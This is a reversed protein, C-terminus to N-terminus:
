GLHSSKCMVLLFEWPWLPIRARSTRSHVTDQRSKNWASQFVSPSFILLSVSSIGCECLVGKGLFWFSPCILLLCHCFLHCLGAPVHRKYLTAEVDFENLCMIFVRRNLYISFKVVWFPFNESLFIQYKKMNRRLAYITPELSTGVIYTKLLILFIMVFVRRNLYISFKM